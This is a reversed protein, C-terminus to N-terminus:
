GRGRLEASAQLLVAHTPGLRRHRGAPEHEGRAGGTGGAATGGGLVGTSGDKGIATAALVIKGHARGIAEILANDDTPDTEQTFELDLAIVSAGATRLRDIVRADYGRPFPFESQLHERELDQLTRNDILVLVIDRPPQQPGRISFRADLTQLETRRLLHTAYALVGLGAALTAVAILLATKRRRWGARGM